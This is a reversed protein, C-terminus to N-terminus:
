ASDSQRNAYRPKPENMVDSRDCGYVFESADADIKKLHRRLKRNGTQKIQRKLRRLFRKDDSMAPSVLNRKRSYDQLSEFGRDARQLLAAKAAQSCSQTETSGRPIAGRDGAHSAPMKRNSSSGM